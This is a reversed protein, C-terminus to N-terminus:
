SSADLQPSYLNLPTHPKTPPFILLNTLISMVLSKSKKSCKIPISILLILPHTHFILPLTAQCPYNYNGNTATPINTFSPAKTPAFSNFHPRYSPRHTPTLTPRSPAITPVASPVTLVITPITTVAMSPNPSTTSQASGLCFLCIFVSLIYMIRMTNMTLQSNSFLSRM